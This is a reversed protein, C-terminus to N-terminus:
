RSIIPVVAPTPFDKASRNLALLQTLIRLVQGSRDVASPDMAVRYRWEAWDVEIASDRSEGSMSGSAKQRSIVFVKDERPPVRYDVYITPLMSCVSLADLGIQCRSIEGLYYIVGETSRPEMQLSFGLEPKAPDGFRLSFSGKSERSDKPPSYGEPLRVHCLLAPPLPETAIRRAVEGEPVQKPNPHM